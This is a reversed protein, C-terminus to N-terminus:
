RPTTTRPLSMVVLAVGMLGPAVFFDARGLTSLTLASFVCWGAPILAALFRLRSKLLAVAGLTAIATPDPALGFVQAGAITFGFAPALLPYLFLGSALVAIGPAFKLRNGQQDMLGTRGALGLMLLVIGEIAALVAFNAGLWNITQYRGLFFVAAVVIWAAGLIVFAIRTGVPARRIVLALVVAALALAVLQVPWLDQNHLVFLREYVQPSFLLFDSLSYSSWGGM